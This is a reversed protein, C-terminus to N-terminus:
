DEATRAAVIDNITTLEIPSPGVRDPHVLHLARASGLAAPRPAVVQVTDSDPRTYIWAPSSETTAGRDVLIAADHTHLETPLGGPATWWDETGDAYLAGMLLGDGEGPPLAGESWSTLIEIVGLTQEWAYDSVWENSCYTMYDRGATPSRLMFDHIGFGWVGIRGNPHPYAQDAGAEGGSCLVHYRGQTHGVEHVFTEAAAAGSGSWRGTSIRQQALEPTPPIPPIGIAQGLLGPPYGDCPDVLGYYYVWPEPNDEARRQALASLVPGFGTGSTGIPDTYPLPDGVTLTAEQLPNLQELENAMADIDEQEIQPTCTEGEFEHQLPVLVVEMLLSTEYLGLQGRGELPLIPPPDSLEGSALEPDAEIIKVRYLIGPVVQDPELLWQFSAGGDGSDGTVMLPFDQVLQTGDPYDAVLRGVLMRPEFDAHLSWFARLLTRRGPILRTNYQEPDVEGAEGVLEVQVGQNATVRTLRIGSAFVPPEAPEGTTDNGDDPDGTEDVAATTQGEAPTTSSSGATGSGDTSPAIDDGCGVALAALCLGWRLSRHM